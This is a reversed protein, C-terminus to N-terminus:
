ILYHPNNDLVQKYYHLEDETCNMEALVKNYQIQLAFHFEAQEKHKFFKLKNVVSCKIVEKNVTVRVNHCFYSNTNKPYETYELYNIEKKDGSHLIENGKLRITCQQPKICQELSVISTYLVLTQVKTKKFYLSLDYHNIYNLLNM